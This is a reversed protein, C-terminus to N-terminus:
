LGPVADIAVHTFGQVDAYDYHFVSANVRLRGDRSDAKVGAEYAFVTEADYSAFELPSFIFGGFFGGSKHAQSMTAYLMLDDDPSWTLGLSGSWNDDLKWTGNLDSVIVDFPSPFAPATVSGDIYRISARTYRLSANTSWQDNLALDVYGWASRSHTIQTYDLQGHVLGVLVNDKLHYQRDEIFKDRSNIAGMQWNFRGTGASAVRLEQSQGTIASATLQHGLELPTGDYDFAFGYDFIEYHLIVDIVSGGAFDSDHSVIAT